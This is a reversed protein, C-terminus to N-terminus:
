IKKGEKKYLQLFCDSMGKYRGSYTQLRIKITDLPYSATLGCLGACQGAIFSYLPRIEKGEVM